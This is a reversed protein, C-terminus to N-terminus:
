GVKSFKAAPFPLNNDIIEQMFSPTHGTPELQGLLKGDPQRVMRSMAFIPLVEYGGDDRLGIVENIAAIRRSGDQYRSVQVILDIASAVQFRLAKESIKADGGQALAELRVIADEPSNAHVTGLCGKHGTNMANILELAESSRVEGVIIRDPRLRLSSKLLDKMSVEGDGIQNAQRTEFRVVHEYNISLESSDEIVILRQGKPIRSCLLSLLTTKGSGTGGSVLINKGLFMCLDLFQAGDSSLSGSKVYDKFSINNQTFKRISIVTGNLSCPPIVAAIRSGDPLRADLRPQDDDIRRGVDNAISNLAARLSDEDPFQATTKELKGQREIFIEFPGNILIESISPDELFSLVPALNQRIAAKTISQSNKSM